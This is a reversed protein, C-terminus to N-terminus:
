LYAGYIWSPPRPFRQLGLSRLPDSRLGAALRYKTCKVSFNSRTLALACERFHTQRVGDNHKKDGGVKDMVCRTDSQVGM